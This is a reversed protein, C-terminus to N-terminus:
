NPKNAQTQPNLNEIPFPSRMLLRPTGAMADEADGLNAFYYVHQGKIMGLGPRDFEEKASAIPLMAVVSTGTSDLDLQMVREPQFGNQVIVLKGQDYSISHIGGLNMNESGALMASSQQGPNVVLVGKYIDAIFLSSNDPTVAIDQLDSMELSGVFLELGKGDAAKRYVVAAAHDVVYVDGAASVTMPGFEHPKGDVPVNFRNVLELTKLNFEFLASRGKDAVQFASFEPGAASSVWLRNTAADAHLGRISWLGNEDNAQILVESSGDQSTALITGASRTGVLFRDRSADWSIAAPDRHEDALTFVTEATGAPQGAQIMLDNLYTYLETGRIGAADPDENLDYSLGQQQMRMMYHYATNMRGVLACAAIVRQMYLAEYPRQNMMRINAGYYRVYSGEEYAKKSDEELQEITKEKTVVTKAEIDPYEPEGSATTEQAQAPSLLLALMMLAIIGGSNIIPM